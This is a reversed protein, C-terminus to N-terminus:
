SLLELRLHNVRNTYRVDVHGDSRIDIRTIATNYHHFFVHPGSEPHLLARILSSAFGGHTVLAVREEGDEANAIGLLQDAVRGAREDCLDDHEVPRNWWGTEAITEPLVYDPFSRVIEGRTAGARGVPGRGDAEDLFIGGCEHIDTWVEVPLGTERSIPLATQLARWMASCYLHTIGYGTRYHLHTDEATSGVSLEPNSGRALHEAVAEAQREGLETLMPDMVRRSQDTLANNTSQGHRVLYLEM